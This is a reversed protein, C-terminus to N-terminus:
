QMGPASHMTDAETYNTNNSELSSLDYDAVADM